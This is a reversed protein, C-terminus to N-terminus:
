GIKIKGLVTNISNTMDPNNDFIIVIARYGSNLPVRGVFSFTVLAVTAFDTDLNAGILFLIAIFEFWIEWNGNNTKASRLELRKM